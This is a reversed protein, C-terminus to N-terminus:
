VAETLAQAIIKEQFNVMNLRYRLSTRAIIYIVELAEAPAAVTFLAPILSVIFDAAQDIVSHIIQILPISAGTM